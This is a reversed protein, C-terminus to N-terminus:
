PPCFGEGRSPGQDTPSPLNGGVRELASQVQERAQQIAQLTHQLCPYAGPPSEALTQPVAGASEPAAPSGELTEIIALRGSEVLPAGPPTEAMLRDMASLHEELRSLAIAAAPAQGSQKLRSMERVRERAYEGYIAVKEESSRTFWLRAEERFQKVSYLSAGPMADQAAAVTGIGGGLTLLAVLVVAAVAWRAPASGGLSWWSRRPSHTRDWHDM